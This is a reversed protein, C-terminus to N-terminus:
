QNIKVTFDDGFDAIIQGGIACKIDEFGSKEQNKKVIISTILGGTTGLVIGAISDSVLRSTNFEGDETKWVSLNLTGLKSLTAIASGIRTRSEQQQSIETRIETSKAETIIYAQGLPTIDNTTGKESTVPQPQPLPKPENQPIDIKSAPEKKQKESPESVPSKKISSEKQTDQKKTDIETDAKQAINTQTTDYIIITKNTEEKKKTNDGEPAFTGGAGGGSFEGSGWTTDKTENSSDSESSTIPIYAVTTNDNPLAEVFNPQINILNKEVDEQNITPKDQETNRKENPKITFTGGAGGGSFEGNGWNNNSIAYSAGTILFTSLFLFTLYNKM